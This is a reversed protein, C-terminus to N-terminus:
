RDERKGIHLPFLLLQLGVLLKCLWCLEVKNGAAKTKWVTATDQAQLIIDVASAKVSLFISIIEPERRISIVSNYLTKVGVVTSCFFFFNGSEPLCLIM